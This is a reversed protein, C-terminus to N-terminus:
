KQYVEKYYSISFLVFLFALILVNVWGFVPYNVTTDLMGLIMAIIGLLLWVIEIRVLIKVHEWENDLLALVSGSTLGIIAAGFVRNIPDLIAPEWGVIMSLFMDPVLFLGFGFIFGIVIHIYFTYKMFDSYEAM